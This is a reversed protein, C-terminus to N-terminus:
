RGCGLRRHPRRRDGRVPSDWALAGQKRRLALFGFLAIVAVVLSILLIWPAFNGLPAIIDGVFGGVASILSVPAAARLIAKRLQEM